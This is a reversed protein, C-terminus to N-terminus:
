HLALFICLHPVQQARAEAAKSADWEQRAALREEAPLPGNFTVAFPATRCSPCKIPDKSRAMQMYIVDESPHLLPQSVAMHVIRSLLLVVDESFVVQLFCETCIGM